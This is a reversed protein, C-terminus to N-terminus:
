TIWAKHPARPGRLTRQTAAPPRPDRSLRLALPPRRRREGGSDSWNPRVHAQSDPPVPTRGGTEGRRRTAWCWKAYTSPRTGLLHRRIFRWHRTNRTVLQTLSSRISDRLLWFVRRLSAAYSHRHYRSLRNRFMWAQPGRPRARAVRCRRSLPGRPFGFPPSLARGTKARGTKGTKM